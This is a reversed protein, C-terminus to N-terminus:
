STPMVSQVTQGRLREEASTQLETQKSKSELAEEEEEEVEEHWRNETQKKKKINRM